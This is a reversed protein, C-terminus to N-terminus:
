ATKLRARVLGTSHLSEAKQKAAYKSHTVNLLCISLSLMIWLPKEYEASFFFAAVVFGPIGAQIGTAAAYSFMDEVATAKQKVLELLRYTSILIGLYVLLGLVGLEAAYELYTNHALLGRNSGFLNQREITSWFTGLGIGSIPHAAVLNLGEKWVILHIRTSAQDGYDPNLIRHIPSSPAYILIPILAFALLAVGARHKSHILLFLISACLGIFGGRSAIVVVALVTIGLSAVCFCREWPARRVRALSYALPIALLAAASFYNGDLVVFGPRYGVAFGANQFERLTYLSGFAFAGIFAYLSYRLRESSDVIAVTILFLTFYEMYITLATRSSSPDQVSGKLAYSLCALFILLAFLRSPWTAFFVPLRGQLTLHFLAYFVCLLGVVKILNFGHHEYGFWPHNPVASFLIVFYFLIM